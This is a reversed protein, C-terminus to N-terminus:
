KGFVIDDPLENKDTTNSYPFHHILANGVDEIVYVLADMYHERQFHLRMKAVEANWFENGVKRHIGEDGLIALQHDKVAVYILVANRERTHDMKLSWFVEAARDLPDVFKCHSEIYVRVEGSTQVEAAKIAAVIKERESASLFETPKFLRFM